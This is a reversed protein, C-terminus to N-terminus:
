DGDPRKKETGSKLANYRDSKGRGKDITNDLDALMNDGPAYQNFSENNAGKKSLYTNKTKNFSKEKREAM